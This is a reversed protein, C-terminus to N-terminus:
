QSEEKLAASRLPLEEICVTVFQSLPNNAVAGNELIFV